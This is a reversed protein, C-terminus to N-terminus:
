LGRPSPLVVRGLVCQKCVNTLAKQVIDCHVFAHLNSNVFIILNHSSTHTLLHWTPLSNEPTVLLLHTAVWVQQMSLLRFDLTLLRFYPISDQQNNSRSHIVSTLHTPKDAICDLLVCCGYSSFCAIGYQFGLLIAM